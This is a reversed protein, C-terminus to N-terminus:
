LVLAGHIVTGRFLMFEDMCVCLLAILAVDVGAAVDVCYRGRSCEQPCGVHAIPVDDCLFVADHTRWQGHLAFVRPEGSTADIAVCDLSSVGCCRGPTVYFWTTLDSKLVDRRQKFLVLPEEMIAVVTGMTDFFVHKHQFMAGQCKIQLYPVGSVRDQVVFLDGHLLRLNEQLYFSVPLTSVFAPDLVAVPPAVPQLPLVHAHSSSTCGM